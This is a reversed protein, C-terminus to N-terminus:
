GDSSRARATFLPILQTILGAIQTMSGLAASGSRTGALMSLGLGAAFAVSVSALPRNRVVNLPSMNQAAVLFRAKAQDLELNQELYCAQPENVETQDKAPM